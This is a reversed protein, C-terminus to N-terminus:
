RGGPGSIRTSDDRSLFRRVDWWAPLEAEPDSPNEVEPWEPGLFVTLDVYLNSDPESRIERIGLADAVKRADGLRGVRDLVVSPAESFTEANGYYVVDVGLDRLLETAERAVGSHGGGNLVEARVRGQFIPLPAVLAGPVPVQWWQAISSGLLVGVGVLVVLLILVRIRQGM